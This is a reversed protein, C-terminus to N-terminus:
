EARILKDVGLAEFSLEQSIGRSHAHQGQAKQRSPTQINGQESVPGVASLCLVDTQM